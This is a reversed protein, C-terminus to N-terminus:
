VLSHLVLLGAALSTVAVLTTFWMLRISYGITQPTASREIFGFSPGEHWRGDYRNKGGLTIGLAGAFAAESLGSNPSAHRGGHKRAARWADRARLRLLLAAVFIWFVSLRAPLYNALDDCRAAIFGFREYREDHHGWMSDLTNVARYLVAGLPGVLAVWFLPAIVGDVTSEAVAEVAARSVGSTDLVETDRGVIGGVALRAGALDDVALAHQVRRAHRALDCPAITFYVLCVDVAIGAGFNLRDVALRIVLAAGVSLGTVMFWAIFGHFRDSGCRRLCAEVRTALAGMLRVPHLRWPPDGLAADLALATVLILSTIM